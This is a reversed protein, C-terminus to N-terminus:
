GAGSDGSGSGLPGRTSTRGSCAHWGGGGGDGIARAQTGCHRWRAHFIGGWCALALCVAPRTLSTTVCFTSPAFSATTCRTSCPLSRASLHLSSITALFTSPATLARRTRPHAHRPPPASPPSSRRRRREAVRLDIQARPSDLVAHRLVRADRAARGVGDCAQHVLYAHGRRDRARPAGQAAAVLSSAAPVPALM